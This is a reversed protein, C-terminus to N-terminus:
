KGAGSRRFLLIGSAIAAGSRDLSFECAFRGESWRVQVRLNVPEEPGVMGKFKLREVGVPALEEGLLAQALLRVALLQLVAPLVPQGPFHGAFGPFDGPCRLLARATSNERDMQLDGLCGALPSAAITSSPISM